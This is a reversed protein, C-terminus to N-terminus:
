KIKSLNKQFGVKEFIRVMSTLTTQLWIPNSGAIQGDDSYKFYIHEGVSWGFGHHAEQTGCVELLVARVLVDVVINFIKPSVPDGQTVGGETRFPGGFYKGAKPTM